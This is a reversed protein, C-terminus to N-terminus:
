NPNVLHRYNPDILYRSSIFGSGGGIGGSVPDQEWRGILRQAIALHWASDALEKERSKRPKHHFLEMVEEPNQYSWALAILTLALASDITSYTLDSEWEYFEKGTRTSWSYIEFNSEQGLPGSVTLSVFRKWMPWVDPLAEIKNDGQWSVDNVWTDAAEQDNDFTQHILRETFDPIQSGMMLAIRIAEEAIQAIEAQDVVLTRRLGKRKPWGRERLRTMIFLMFFTDM